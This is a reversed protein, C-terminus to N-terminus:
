VHARGIKHGGIRPLSVKTGDSFSLIFKARAHARGQSGTHDAEHRLAALAHDFVRPSDDFAPHAPRIVSHLVVWHLPHVDSIVTIVGVRAHVQLWILDDPVGTHEALVCRVNCADWVSGVIHHMLPTEACTVAFRHGVEEVDVRFVRM